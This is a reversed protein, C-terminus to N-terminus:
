GHGCLTGTTPTTHAAATHSAATGLGALAAVSVGGLPGMTSVAAMAGLGVSAEAARGFEPRRARLLLRYLEMYRLAMTRSCFRREFTQRIRTRDAQGAWEVAAVAAAESEVIRGTIGDEIIEPISGRNWAIVPTGCAMAEIMVLGFPEPWDIPFLLALAQGLLEGKEHEGIEGIFEVLPDGLLPRIRDRFYDADQADVKAAIKLPVGARRAIAIAREPGKEPAIRGLFALYRGENRASFPYASLPVGHPVNGIWNAAPQATRQRLSISALPYHPWARFVPAYDKCDLRGHLTTLTRQARDEFFPFHLLDLHFHLLDFEHAIAQVQRLMSYHAAFESKLPHADLRIAQDRMPVLRARTRAEASAFLTVDCDLEVLADTLYAVVRETGGYAHPPVAECLPAIQAVRVARGGRTLTGFM